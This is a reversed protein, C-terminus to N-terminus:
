REAGIAARVRDPMDYLWSDEDTQLMNLDTEIQRVAVDLVARAIKRDHEDLWRDFGEAQVFGNPNKWAGLWGRIEAVTPVYDTDPKTQDIM